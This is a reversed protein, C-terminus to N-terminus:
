FVRVGDVDDKIIQEWLYTKLFYSKLGEIEEEAVRKGINVDKLENERKM